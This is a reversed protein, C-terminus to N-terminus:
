EVPVWVLEGAKMDPVLIYRGDRTLAIDAAAQFGGRVLTPEDHRVSFVKGNKWDSVYMLGNPHHVLGDGGGFGEALDTLTRTKLHYSYLVGSAFDVFLLVEGSDDMLLGNPAQIRADQRGDILKEVKGQRNIRYIAGGKELDGSDSVYLYRGKLDREMDNLFQPKAPFASEPVFVSWQGDPTVKLIRTKDAVYLDQDLWTLGKPDDMGRAFVRVKGDPEIVTIQGDGDKGFGNIESVFIRGDPTQLVSEPTKLGTVKRDRRVCREFGHNGGKYESEYYYKTFGWRGQADRQMTAIGVGYDRTSQDQLAFYVGLRDGDAAAHGLYTGFGPVDLRFDYAGYHGTSQAPVLRMTVTGTYAGEHADDGSCDYIGSHDTGQFPPAAEAVLPCLAVLLIWAFRKM